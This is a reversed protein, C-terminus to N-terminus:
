VRLILGIKVVRQAHPGTQSRYGFTRNMIANRYNCVSDSFINAGGIM